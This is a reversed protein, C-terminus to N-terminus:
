NTATLFNGDKDFSLKANNSLRVYQKKGKLHYEIIRNGQYNANVYDAIVQPIVNEDATNRTFEIRQFEGKGNFDITTADFLCIQYDTKFTSKECFIVRVDKEQFHSNIFQQTPEPLQSFPILENSSGCSSVSLAIMAAVSLTLYHKM